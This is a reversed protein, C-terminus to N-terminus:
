SNSHLAIKNGETDLFVAMYGHEPSIQTKPVEVKGGSAEVRGLEISVDESGFYIVSGKHCPEYLEPNYVLSGPAGAQGEGWPFWAMVDGGFEQAELSIGFVANYFKIARDMDAVPIEFWVIGKANM